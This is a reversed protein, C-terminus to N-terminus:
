PLNLGKGITAKSLSRLSSTQNVDLMELFWMQFVCVENRTSSQNGFIFTNNGTFTRPLAGTGSKSTNRSNNHETFGESVTPSQLDDRGASAFYFGIGVNTNNTSGWDRYSNGGTLDGEILRRNGTPGYIGHNYTSGTPNIPLYSNLGCIHSNNDQSTLTNLISFNSFKKINILNIAGFGIYGTRLTFIIGAEGWSGDILTGNLINRIGYVKSGSGANQNKRLFWGDYILNWLNLDKLGVIFDNVSYIDAPTKIGDVAMRKLYAKTDRDLKYYKM